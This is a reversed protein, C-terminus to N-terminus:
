LFRPKFQSHYCTRYFLGAKLFHETTCHFGPKEFGERDWAEEYSRHIYLGKSKSWMVIVKGKIEWVGLKEFGIKTERPPELFWSWSEFTRLLCCLKLPVDTHLMSWTGEGVTLPLICFTALLGSYAAFNCQCWFMKLTSLYLSVQLHETSCTNGETRMHLSTSFM